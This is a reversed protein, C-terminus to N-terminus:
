IIDYAYFRDKLRMSYPGAGVTNSPHESGPVIPRNYLVPNLLEKFLISICSFTLLNFIILIKSTFFLQNSIYTLITILM